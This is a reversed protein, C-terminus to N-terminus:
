RMAMAAMTPPALSALVAAVLVIAIGFATEALVSRALRRRATEGDAGALSPAMRYRHRLAFGILIAFLVIKAMAVRGYVTTVLASASGVLVTGQWFATVLLVLVAPKAFRSYDHAAILGAAPPADRILLALPLLSGLWAGAALVHLAECALFFSPGSAMAAAHLHGAELLVAIGAVIAALAPRTGHGAGGLVFFAGLLMAAQALVLHGFGTHLAVVALTAALDPVRGRALVGSEVVLWGLEGLVALALSLSALVSCRRELRGSAAQEMGATARPMLLTLFLMAGFGSFACALAAGHVLTAAFAGASFVAASSM